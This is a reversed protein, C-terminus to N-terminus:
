VESSLFFPSKEPDETLAADSDDTPIVVKPPLSPVRKLPDYSFKKCSHEAPVIGRKTCLVQEADHLITANCCYACIHPSEALKDSISIKTNIKKNKM